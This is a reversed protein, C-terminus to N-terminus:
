SSRTNFRDWLCGGCVGLVIWFLGAGAICTCAFQIILARPVSSEGVAAPAGVVHPLLVLVAGAFRVSWNRSSQGSILWTGASTLAVTAVWWIQRHTIDALPVGPPQPPL